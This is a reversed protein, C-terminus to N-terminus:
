AIFYGICSIVTLAITCLIFFGQTDDKNLEFVKKVILTIILSLIAAGIITPILFSVFDLKDPGKAVETIMRGAAIYKSQLDIM